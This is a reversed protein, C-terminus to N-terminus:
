KLIEKVISVFDNIETPIHMNIETKIGKITYTACLYPESASTDGYFECHIGDLRMINVYDSDGVEITFETDKFARDLTKILTKNM